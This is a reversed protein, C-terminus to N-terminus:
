VTEPIAAGEPSRIAQITGADIAVIGGRGQVLVNYLLHAHGPLYRHIREGERVEGVIVVGVLVGQHQAADTVVHVPPQALAEEAIHWCFSRCWCHAYSTTM